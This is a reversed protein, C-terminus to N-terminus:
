EKITFDGCIYGRRQSNDGAKLKKQALDYDWVCLSYVGEEVSTSLSFAFKIPATDSSYCKYSGECATETCMVRSNDDFVCAKKNMGLKGTWVTATLREGAKVVKPSVSVSTGDSDKTSAGTISNMNFSLLAVFILLMAAILIRNNKDM